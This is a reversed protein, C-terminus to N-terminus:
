DGIFLTYDPREEFKMQRCMTLMNQLGLNDIILESKLREKEPMDSNIWKLDTQLSIIVYIFSEMDDRRSPECFKHVNISIYNPTGIIDSITKQEIHRSKTRTGQTIIRKAFGFDILKIKEGLIMFNDPKIDRHVIGKDHIFELANIMQISINKLLDPRVPKAIAKISYDLLELILYASVPNIIYGKFKPFYNNNNLYNYIKAENKLSNVGIYETKIAVKEGTYIDIGRYIKGFAGNTLQEIIEFKELRIM